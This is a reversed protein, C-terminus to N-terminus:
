ENVSFIFLSVWHFSTLLNCDKSTELAEKRQNINTRQEVVKHLISTKYYHFVESHQKHSGCGILATSRLHYVIDAISEKHLKNWSFWMTFTGELAEVFSFPERSPYLLGGRDCFSTFSSLDKDAENASTLLVKFCEHCKTTLIKHRAVYGAIYYVLRSLNEDHSSSRRNEPKRGENPLSWRWKPLSKVQVRLRRVTETKARLKSSATKWKM